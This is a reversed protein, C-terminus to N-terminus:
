NLFANAPSPKEEERERRTGARNEKILDATLKQQTGPPKRSFEIM